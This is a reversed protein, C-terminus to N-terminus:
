RSSPFNGTLSKSRKRAQGTCEVQLCRSVLDLGGAERVEVPLQRYKFCWPCQDEYAEGNEVGQLFAEVIHPQLRLSESLQSYLSPQRLIREILLPEYALCIQLPVKTLFSNRSKPHRAFYDLLRQGNSLKPRLSAPINNYSIINKDLLQWLEDPPVQDQWEIPSAAFTKGGSKRHAVEAFAIKAEKYLELNTIRHLKKYWEVAEEETSHQMIEEFRMLFLKTLAKDTHVREYPSTLFEEIYEKQLPNSQLDRELREIFNRESNQGEEFVITLTPNHGERPLGDVFNRWANENRMNTEGRTPGPMSDYVKTVNHLVARIVRGRGFANSLLSVLDHSTSNTPITITDFSGALRNVHLTLLRPAFYCTVNLTPKKACHSCFDLHNLFTRWEYENMCMETGNHYSFSLLRDLHLLHQAAEQIQLCVDAWSTEQTIIINGFPPQYPDYRLCLAINNM